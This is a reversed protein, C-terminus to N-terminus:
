GARLDRAFDRWLRPGWCDQDEGWCEQGDFSWRVLNGWVLMSPHNLSMFRSEVVGHATFERGLEDTAAIDIQSARGQADRTVERRGSALKAWQGDRMLFGSIVKDVGSRGTGSVSLFASTPSAIAYVYGMQVQRGAKRPGWGRDRMAFCDVPITEGHLVLQGRVRGPQDIHGNQVFAGTASDSVMPRMISEYTLDFGLEDSAYTLHYHGGPRLCKVGLSSPLTFDRLDLGAPMIGYHDWHNIPMEWPLETVGENIQVGGLQIGMNPRFVPYIYGLLKREPVIFAFWLTETWAPEDTPHPHLRDDADTMGWQGTNDARATTSM